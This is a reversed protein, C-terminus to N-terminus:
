RAALQFGGRATEITFEADKQNDPGALCSPLLPRLRNWNAGLQMEECRRARM